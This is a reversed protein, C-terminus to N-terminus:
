KQQCIMYHLVEGTQVVNESSQEIKKNSDDILQVVNDSAQQLSEVLQRIEQTSEQTRGALTRVEDAVVAFGRGQEGARAAEIAANLALLNTQEAIGNIVDIVAGINKTNNSLNQTAEKGNNLEDALQNFHEIAQKLVQNGKKARNDTEETTATSAVASQSISASSKSVEQMGENIDDIESQQKCLVGQMNNSLSLTHKTSEALGSSKAILETILNHLQGVFQNIQTALEGLEDNRDVNLTKTLDGDGSALDRSLDTLKKLPKIV